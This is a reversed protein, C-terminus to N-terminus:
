VKKKKPGSYPTQTGPEWNEPTSLGSLVPHQSLTVCLKLITASWLSWGATHSMHGWETHTHTPQSCLHGIIWHGVHRLDVPQLGCMGLHGERAAEASGEEGDDASDEEDCNTLYVVASGSCSTVCSQLQRQETSPISECWLNYLFDAVLIVVPWVTVPKSCPSCQNINFYYILTHCSIVFLTVLFNLWSLSQIERIPQLSCLVDIM